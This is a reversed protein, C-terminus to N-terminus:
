DCVLVWADAAIICVGHSSPSSLGLARYALGLARPKYLKAQIFLLLRVSIALICSPADRERACRATLGYYVKRVVFFQAVISIQHHRGMILRM